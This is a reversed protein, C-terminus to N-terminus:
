NYSTITPHQIIQFIKHKKYEGKQFCRAWRKYDANTKLLTYIYYSLSGYMKGSSTKYEYNRETKLCASVITLAAGATFRKPKPVRKLYSSHGNPMFPDSTGRSSTLIDIDEIGLEDEEGREMGQSHCADIVVFMEGTSGIKTKIANLLPNYEDDILHNQGEYKGKKTTCCTRYADYPIMSEDYDGIEDANEDAIPQGHGSFHFYVKDGTQCRMAMANLERVINAKTAEQNILTKIDTFGNSKLSPVLLKIDADGHIPKWGTTATPYKGIGVLLARNTALCRVSCVGCILMLIVIIRRM